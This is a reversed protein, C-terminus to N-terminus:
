SLTEKKPAKVYERMVRDFFEYPKAGEIAWKGGVIFTPVASINQMRAEDM